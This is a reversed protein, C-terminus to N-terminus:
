AEYCKVEEHGEGRVMEKKSQEREQAGVVRQKGTKRGPWGQEKFTSEKNVSSRHQHSWATVMAGESVM